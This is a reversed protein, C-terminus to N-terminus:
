AALRQEIEHRSWALDLEMQKVVAYIPQSMHADYRARLHELEEHLRRLEAYTMRKRM